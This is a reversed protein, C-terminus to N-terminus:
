ARSRVLAALAESRTQSAIAVDRFFSVSAPYLFALKTQKNRPLYRM